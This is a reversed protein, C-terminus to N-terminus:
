RWTTIYEGSDNCEYMVIKNMGEALLLEITAGRSEKYDKLMLIADAKELLNICVMMYDKWSDCNSPLKIDTPNIVTHGQKELKERALQFDFKYNEKGTIKGSLYVLM